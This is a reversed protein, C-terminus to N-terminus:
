PEEITEFEEAEEPGPEVPEEETVEPQYFEYIKQINMTWLIVRPQDDFQLAVELAEDAKRLLEEPNILFGMANKSVYEQHAKEILEEFM